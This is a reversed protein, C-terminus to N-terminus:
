SNGNTWCERYSDLAKFPHFAIQTKDRCDYWNAPPACHDETLLNYENERRVNLVKWLCQDIFMDEGWLCPGNCLKEFHKMCHASGTGWAKVANVSFVELPGHLGFKCNNLYLGTGMRTDDSYKVLMQRLRDPFFVTDPDAKVVWDHNLFTGDMMVKTWVALFIPTNLATMFEGGKDCKLDSDVVGTRIGPAVEILANSYIAYQDCAFINAHLAYEMRLLDEEYSGPLM